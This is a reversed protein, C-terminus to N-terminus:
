NAPAEATRGQQPMLEAMSAAIRALMMQRMM